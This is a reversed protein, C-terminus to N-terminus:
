VTLLDQVLDILYNGDAAVYIFFDKQDLNGQLPPIIM